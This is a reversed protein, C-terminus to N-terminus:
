KKEKKVAIRGIAKGLEAKNLCEPLAEAGRGLIELGEKHTLERGNSDTKFRLADDYENISKKLNRIAGKLDM